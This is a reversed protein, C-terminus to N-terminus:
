LNKGGYTVSILNGLAGAEKQIYEIYMTFTVIQIYMGIRIIVDAGWKKMQQISLHICDLKLSKCVHILLFYITYDRFRM